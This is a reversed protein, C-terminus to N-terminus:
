SYHRIVWREVPAFLLYEISWGLLVLIFITGVVQDMAQMERGYHLLQGLGLGSIASIYIEASLLSRWAFAWCQRMASMTLPLAAPIIVTRWLTIGRSGMTRAAKIFVRPVLQISKSTSIILGWISGMCIVFIIAIDTQGFWLLSLPVWCVSPLTQLGLAIKGITCGLRRIVYCLVGLLIGIFVSLVYGIMLREMSIGIAHWLTCDKFFGNYFFSVIQIPSPFFLDSYWGLDFSIQWFCVLCVVYFISSKTVKRFFNM